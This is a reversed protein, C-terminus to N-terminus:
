KRRVKAFDKGPLLTIQETRTFADATFPGLNVANTFALDDAGPIPHPYASPFHRSRYDRREADFTTGM